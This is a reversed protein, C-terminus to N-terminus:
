ADPTLRSLADTVTRHVAKPILGKAYAEHGLDSQITSFIGTRIICRKALFVTLEPSQQQSSTTLEAPLCQLYFSTYM